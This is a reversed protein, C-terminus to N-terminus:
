NDENFIEYNIENESKAVVLASFVDSDVNLITRLMGVFWEVGAFIAISAVPLGMQPVVISLSVLGAGPVVANALSALTSLVAIYLYQQFSYNVGYIQSITIITIAMHMAAGNSNLSMGLPMVLKSVREKIGLREESDKLATPLTVASSTTAIAMMSMRTIKKIIKKISLKCYISILLIWLILFTFTAFGYVLLYKILPIIVKIGLKGITTAVLAVIGLPALNMVLMIMKLIIKNFQVIYELVINKENKEIFDSNIYSIAIGFVISFVIVQVINSNALSSMINSPFFGIIIDYISGIDGVAVDKSIVEGSIGLGPKFVVGFLVGYIAAILSSTMFVIITKIGLKGLSKTNVVGVAEIVQGMVLLVISMQILRLFLTGMLKFILIEKGFIFGIVVGLVMSLMIKNTMSIKLKNM